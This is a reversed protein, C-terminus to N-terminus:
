EQPQALFGRSFEPNADVGHIDYPRTEDGQERSAGRARKENEEYKDEQGGGIAPSERPRQKRSRSGDEHEKELGDRSDPRHVDALVQLRPEMEVPVDKQSSIQKYHRNEEPVHGLRLLEQTRFGRGNPADHAFRLFLGSKGPGNM